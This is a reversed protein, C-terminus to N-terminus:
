VIERNLSFEKNHSNQHTPLCYDNGHWVRCSLKWVCLEPEVLWINGVKFDSLPVFVCSSKFNIWLPLSPIWIKDIVAPWTMMLIKHLNLLHTYILQKSYNLSCIRPLCKNRILSLDNWAKDFDSWLMKSALSNLILVM